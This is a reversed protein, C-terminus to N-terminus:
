SNRVAIKFYLCLKVICSKKIKMYYRTNINMQLMISEESRKNIFHQKFYKLEEITLLKLAKYIDNYFIKIEEECSIKNIVYREIKSFANFDKNSDYRIEYNPTIQPPSIYHYEINYILYNNILESLKMKSKEYDFKDVIEKGYLIVNEKEVM